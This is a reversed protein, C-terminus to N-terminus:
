KKAPLNDVPLIVPHQQHPQAPNQVGPGQKPNSPFRDPTHLPLNRGITKSGDVGSAAQPEPFWTQLAVYGIVLLAVAAAVALRTPVRFFRVLSLKRPPKPQRVTHTVEPAQPWPQPMEAHYYRRLLADIEETRTASLRFPV